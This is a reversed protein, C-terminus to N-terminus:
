RCLSTLRDAMDLHFHDAHASNFDPSLTTAYLDCAGDRAEQLFASRGDRVDWHSLISVRQGDALIFAAIDIANGTAHESWNRSGGIRRCNITGLHEVRAVRQGLHRLAAPQVRDRLWLALGAAVPCTMVPQAPLLPLASTRAGHGTWMTRDSLACAGSGLPPLASHAIGGSNLLSRCAQLEGRLASLKGHTAWGVPQSLDLPALPNHQPHDRLWHWVLCSLGLAVFLLALRTPWNTRHSRRRNVSRRAM